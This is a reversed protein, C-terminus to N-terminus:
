GLRRATIFAPYSPSANFTAHPAGTGGASARTTFTYTGAALTLRRKVSAGAGGATATGVAATRQREVAGQYLHLLAYAPPNANNSFIACSSEVEVEEAQGLTFTISLGPVVEPNDFTGVNINVNATIEAYALEHVGPPGEPGVPGEPGEPGEPGIVTSDAGAPGPIGQLGEPGEPGEPGIVTSDAGAPGEPGQPGEPGPVTSDAGAPGPVTSDVGVPGPIGQPGQPGEPGEPGPEGGGGGGVSYPLENWPTTGDGIKLRGTDREVGPEGAALIPNKAIWEVSHGRKLKFTVAM